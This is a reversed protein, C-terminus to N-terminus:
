LVASSAVTPDAVRPPAEASRRGLVLRVVHVAGDEAIPVARPHVPVGDVQASAIGRCRGEPNAVAIEYRTAGIRWTIAYETWSAPICPDLEFTAGHRRLRRPHERNRRPVDVGRLRHVLDL